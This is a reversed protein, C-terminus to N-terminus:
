GLPQAQPWYASFAQRGFETVLQPLQAVEQHSEPYTWRGPNDGTTPVAIPRYPLLPSDPLNECAPGCPSTGIFFSIADLAPRSVLANMRQTIPNIPQQTPPNNRGQAPPFHRSGAKSLPDGQPIVEQQRGYRVNGAEPPTLFTRRSLLM